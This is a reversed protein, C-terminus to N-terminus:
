RGELEGGERFRLDGHVVLVDGNIEGGVILDGGLVAVNGIIVQKSPVEAAGSLCITAPDNLFGVAWKAIEGPIENRAIVLEQGALSDSAPCLLGLLGPILALLISVCATTPGMTRKETSPQM